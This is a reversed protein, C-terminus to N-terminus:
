ENCVGKDTTSNKRGCDRSYIYIYGKKIMCNEFRDWLDKDKLNGKGIRADVTRFWLEKLHRERGKAGCSEADIWRKEANTKGLSYPKQYRAIMPYEEGFCQNSVLGYICDDKASYIFCGNLLIIGLLLIVRKM